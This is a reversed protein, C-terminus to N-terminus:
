RKDAVWDSADGSWEPHDGAKWIPTERELMQLLRRKRVAERAVEVLFASRGRPGVLEDIEALLDDPLVIHTRQTGM